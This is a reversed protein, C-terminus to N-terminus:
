LNFQISLNKCKAGAIKPNSILKGEYNYIVLGNTSEVLCFYKQSQLIFAVSDKLEYIHPTNWNPINYIYFQTATNAILSGFGISLNIV